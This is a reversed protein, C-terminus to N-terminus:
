LVRHAFPICYQKVHVPNKHKLHIDHKVVDCTGIDFENEAIAEHHKYILKMYEGRVEEPCKLVIKDNIYKKKEASLPATKEEAVQLSAVEAFECGDLSEIEAVNVNAELKMPVDQQNLM